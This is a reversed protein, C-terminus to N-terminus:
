SAVPTYRIMVRSGDDRGKQFRPRWKGWEDAYRTAYSSMLREFVADRTEISARAVFSPATRFRDGARRVTGFDGVWLRARTRGQRVARAKWRDAATFVVVDGEDVFFWVEGHCRSERGDALLPSVYVLASDALARRAAEPLMWADEAWGRRVPAVLSGTVLGAGILVQRRTWQGPARGPRAIEDRGAQKSEGSM